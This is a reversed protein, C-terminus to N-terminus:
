VARGDEHAQAGIQAVRQHMPLAELVLQAGGKDARDKELEQARAVLRQGLADRAIEESFAGEVDLRAPEREGGEAALEEAGEGAWWAVTSVGRLGFHERGVDGVVPVASHAAVGRRRGVAVLV